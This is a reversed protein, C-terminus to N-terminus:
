QVGINKLENLFQSFGKETFGNMGITEFCEALCDAHHELADIRRQNNGDEVILRSIESQLEEISEMVENVDEAMYFCHEENDTEDAAKITYKTLETM